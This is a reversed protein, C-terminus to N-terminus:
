KKKINEILNFFGVLNSDLYARPNVLSYRVGAQAAFHYVADFNFKFIKKLKNKDKLDLKIFNLKKYKKLKKLRNKKVKISYYNNLNDLGIIQHNSNKLLYQAFNFGIFGAAGTILIRM